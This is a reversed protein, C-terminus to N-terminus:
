ASAYATPITFFFDSGKGLESEVWIRGGHAEVAMKCFTLGLGSSMKRGAKRTEVQGFKDFIRAFADHPIGEGTDRVVFVVFGGEEDPRVSVTVMGNRGTFKLANGLLNILVRRLIDPDAYLPPLGLPTDHQLCIEKQHALARVVAVAESVVNAPHIETRELTLEGAEMKSVDLIDNVMSLLHYAGNRCMGIMERQMEDLTGPSSMILELPGIISTLPTRLDHVLMATLNDRLSEARRLDANAKVLDDHQRKARVLTKVRAVVETEDVPKTLFDDAGAELARVRDAIDQLATVIVVPVFAAAAKIRQCVEFGDMDPMMVDLLAVDPRADEMLCLADPGNAATHVEYGAICLIGALLRVNAPTDDVILVTGAANEADAREHASDGVSAAIQFGIDILATM